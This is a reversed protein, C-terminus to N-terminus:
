STSAGRSSRSARAPRGPSCCRPARASPWRSSGSSSGTSARRQAHRHGGQPLVPGRAAGAPLAGRAHRVEVPGPRHAHLAGPGGRGRARAAPSPRCWGGPSTRPERGAPVHLDARHAHRHHHPRPLGRARPRLPLRARLRAARRLGGRLGVPEAIDVVTTPAGRDGAVGAPHGGDVTRRRAGGGLPPYLLELRDVLLDEQQCLAVTPRWREWRKPGQARRRADHRADRPGGDQATADKAMRIAVKDWPIRFSRDRSLREGRLLRSARAAARAGPTGPVRTQPSRGSPLAM